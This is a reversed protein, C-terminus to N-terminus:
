GVLIWGEEMWGGVESPPCAHFFLPATKDMKPLSFHVFHALSSLPERHECLSFLVRKARKPVLYEGQECLSFILIFGNASWPLIPYLILILDTSIDTFYRIFVPYIFLYESANTLPCTSAKSTYPFAVTVM